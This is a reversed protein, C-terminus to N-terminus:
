SSTPRDEGAADSGAYRLGEAGGKIGLHGPFERRV